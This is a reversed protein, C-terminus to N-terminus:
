PEPLLYEADVLKQHGDAHPSYRHSGVPAARRAIATGRIVSFNPGQGFALFEVRPFPLRTLM